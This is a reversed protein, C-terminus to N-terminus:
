QCESPDSRFRCVTVTASTSTFSGTRIRLLNTTDDFMTQASISGILQSVPGGYIPRTVGTWTYISVKGVVTSNMSRDYGRATRYGVYVSIPADDVGGLWTSADIKIFNQQRLIQSPLNFSTWTGPIMNASTMDGGDVPSSWGLQYSHPTNYCRNSCCDGMACTQDGYTSQTTAAHDLGYNHGLEHFVAALALQNNTFYTNLWVRCETQGVCAM